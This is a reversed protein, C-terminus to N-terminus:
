HGKINENRWKEVSKRNMEAIKCFYENVELPDHSNSENANRAMCVSCYAQEQCNVCKKFDKKTLARIYKFKESTLWIETLSKEHVNGASFDSWSPCPLVNGYADVSCCTYGVGCWHGNQDNYLIACQEEYDDASILKKFYTNEETLEDIIVQMHEIDIRNELNDSSGDCRAILCYDTRVMINKTKAWRVLEVFDNENDKMLPCNIQVPINNELLTQIALKTKECSGPVQTIKDHHENVLSYLSAIITIRGKKFAEIYEKKLLTLNTLITINISLKQAEQVFDLFNPHLMPEGGSIGFSVVGMEGVERLIQYYMEPEMSFNKMAHPIYCHVCRENCVNTIEVQFKLLKPNELFYQELYEQTGFRKGVDKYVISDILKEQSILYSFEDKKQSCEDFSNGFDLFGEKQLDDYFEIMDRKLEQISVGAFIDSAQQVLESIELPEYSLLSLFVAGVDNVVRDIDYPSRQYILYGIDGYSRFMTHWKLKYFM